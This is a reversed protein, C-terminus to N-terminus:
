YLLPFINPLLDRSSIKPTRNWAACGNTSSSTKWGSVDREAAMQRWNELHTGASPDYLHPWGEDWCISLGLVDSYGKLSSYDIEGHKRYPLMTYTPASTTM